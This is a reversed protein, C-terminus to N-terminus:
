TSHVVVYLLPPNKTDILTGAIPKQHFVTYSGVSINQSLCQGDRTFIRLPIRYQGCLAIVDCVDYGVCAPLICWTDPRQAIYVIAHHRDYAAGPQPIQAVVQNVPYTSPIYYERLPIHQEQARKRADDISMGMFTPTPIYSPKRSITIFVTQNPKVRTYPQPIQEVVTGPDLYADEQKAKVHPYLHRESLSQLAIYAPKGVIHPVEIAMGGWWVAAVYYGAIFVLFPM